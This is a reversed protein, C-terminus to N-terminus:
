YVYRDTYNSGDGVFSSDAGGAGFTVDIRSWRESEVSIKASVWTGNIYIMNWSHYINDPSVYGTIIQCPIGLSRFMAAALSAYDFCIGTRSNLTSDPIPIYGTTDALMEAKETDYSINSTLWEYVSKVVDGENSASSALERAQQVCLSDEDFQCFVNPRLYPQFENEMRVDANTSYLQVYSSGSTNQMVRFEYTGDGMNLPCIIPIGDNSIDYNYAMGDKLVQFKLRNQNVARAGVYGHALNSTDIYANNSGSAAAPDFYSGEITSPVSFGPGSTQESASGSGTCSCLSACVVLMAAALVAICRSRKTTVCVTM